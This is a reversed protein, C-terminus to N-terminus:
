PNKDLIKFLKPKCSLFLTEIKIDQQDIFHGTEEIEGAPEVLLILILVINKVDMDEM